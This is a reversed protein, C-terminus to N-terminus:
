AEKRWIGTCEPCLLSDDHVGAQLTEQDFFFNLLTEKEERSRFGYDTRTWTRQFGSAEFFEFYGAFRANPPASPPPATTECAICALSFRLREWTVLYSM